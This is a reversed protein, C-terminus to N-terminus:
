ERELEALHEETVGHLITTLTRTITLSNNPEHKDPRPREVRVNCHVVEETSRLLASETLELKCEVVMAMAVVDGQLGRWVREVEDLLWGLTDDEVIRLVLRHGNYEIGQRTADPFEHGHSYELRLIWSVRTQESSASELPAVAPAGEAQLREPPLYAGVSVPERPRKRPAVEKTESPVGGGKAAGPTGRGEAPRGFRSFKLLPAASAASSPASASGAAPAASLANRLIPGSMRQAISEPVTLMPHTYAKLQKTPVLVLRFDITHHPKVKFMRWATFLQVPMRVPTLVVGDTRETVGFSAPDRMVRRAMRAPFTPKLHVTVLMDDGFGLEVRGASAFHGSGSPTASGPGDIWHRAADLRADYDLAAISRDGGLMIADFIYLRTGVLEADMVTGRGSFTVAPVSAYTCTFCAMRRDLLVVAREGSNPLRFGVLQFRTGDVKPSCVYPERRVAEIFEPDMSIPNPGPFRPAPEQPPVRGLYGFLVAARAADQHERPSAFGALLELADEVDRPADAEIEM